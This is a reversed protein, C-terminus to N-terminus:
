FYNFANKQLVAFLKKELKMFIEWECFSSIAVKLNAIIVRRM